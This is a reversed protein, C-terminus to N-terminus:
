RPSRLNDKRSWSSLSNGKFSVMNAIWFNRVKEVKGDSKLHDLSLLINSQTETAKERLATVVEYHREALTTQRARLSMDLNVNDVKDAMVAIVAIKDGPQSQVIMDDLPAQITGAWGTAAFLFSLVFLLCSKM